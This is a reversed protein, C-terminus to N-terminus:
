AHDGGRGRSRGREIEGLQRVQGRQRVDLRTDELVRLGGGTQSRTRIQAVPHELVRVGRAGDAQAHGDVGGSSGRRRLEGEGQSGVGGGLGDPSQELGRVGAPRGHQGAGHAVATLLAGLLAIQMHGCQVVHGRQVIREDGRVARAARLAEGDAGVIVHGDRQVATGRAEVVDEVGV